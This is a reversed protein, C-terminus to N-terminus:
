EIFSMKKTLTFDDSKLQYLYIGNSLGTPKWLVSHNGANLKDNLLTVIEHGLIDFVKLCIYSDKELSFSINTAPNFPNPFNQELIFDNSRERNQQIQSIINGNISASSILQSVSAYQIKVIGVNPAFVFWQEEDFYEPIDFFFEFCNEFTGAFTEININHFVKVKFSDANENLQCYYFSSDPVSFDFWLYAKNEKENYQWINGDNDKRLLRESVNTGIQTEIIFYKKGDISTTDTILKYDAKGSDPSGYKYQWYNGVSSPFMDHNNQAFTSFPSLFAVILIISYKQLFCM